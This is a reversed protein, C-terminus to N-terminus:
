AEDSISGTDYKDGYNKAGIKLFMGLAIMGFIMLCKISVSSTSILTGTGGWTGYPIEKMSFFLVFYIISYIATSITVVTRKTLIGTMFLAFIVPLIEILERCKWLTIVKDSNGTPILSIYLLSLINSGILVIGWIKVMGEGIENNATKIKRYFFIFFVVYGILRFWRSSQGLINVLWYGYGATNRVFYTIQELFWVIINVVGIWIFLMSVKSFDKQTREIVAKILSIDDLALAIKKDM